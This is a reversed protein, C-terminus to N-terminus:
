DGTGVFFYSNEALFSLFNDYFELFVPIDGNPPRYCVSYVSRGVLLSLIEYDPTIASYSNLIQGNQSAELLLAVGGGRGSSRNLFHTKYSNMMFVDHTGTSWTESLMIVSFKFNFESFFEELSQMKNRVSRSNLHIAKVSTTPFYSAIRNLDTPLYFHSQTM